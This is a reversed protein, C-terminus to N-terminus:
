EEPQCAGDLYNQCEEETLQRTLRSRAIDMLEDTDLTYVGIQNGPLPVYLLPETPHFAGTMRDTTGFEGLQQGSDTDWVKLPEDHARSLVMSGDHSLRVDTIFANHAAIQLLVNQDPPHGALLGGVDIVFISGNHGAAILRSGDPTFRHVWASTDIEGTDIEAVLRGTSTDWLRRIPMIQDNNNTLVLSGDPTFVAEPVLGGVELDAVSADDRTRVLRTPRNAEDKVIVAISGDDSVGRIHWGEPPTFLVQQDLNSWLHSRGDESRGATYQGNSSFVPFDWIFTSESDPGLRYDVVEGTVADIAGTSVEDHVALLSGDDVAILHATTGYSFRSPITPHDSRAPPLSLVVTEDVLVGAAAVLDTGVIPVMVFAGGRVGGHLRRIVEGDSADLLSPAGEGGVVLRRGDALWLPRSARTLTTTWSVERDVLDYVAVRSQDSVAVRSDDPAISLSDPAFAVDEPSVAIRDLEEGTVADHIPLAAGWGGEPLWTLVLLRGGSSFSPARADELRYRLQQDALGWVEVAYGVTSSREFAVLGRDVDVADEWATSRPLPSGGFDSAEGTRWDWVRVGDEVRAYIVVLRDGSHDFAAFFPEAQERRLEALLQESTRDWVAVSEKVGLTALYRGDDSVAVFRGGPFRQEVFASNVGDRLTAVASLPAEGGAERFADIAALSLMMSLEPDLAVNADAELVLRRAQALSASREAESRQVEAESRQIEAETRQIVAVVALAGAFAAAAAFGGLIRRRRQRRAAAEANRRAISAGLFAREATTIRVDTGAVWEEYQSLRGGTLLNAPNRKSEEWEAHAAQFRRQLVLSERRAEVWGLLTPWERLVAEHAVEVTAGRTTPDVDFTLLRERGFTDLVAQADAEPMGLSRFESVRVRRRLDDADDTVTLLRTFVHRAIDRQADTLTQYAAEAREAVAGRVGGLAGYEAHGIRGDATGAALRDLTFQLMPLSGPQDALDGIIRDALGTELELGAKEAPEIIAAHAADPDLPALALHATSIIPGLTPLSLAEHFFDARLTLLIRIRCAPDAAANAIAAIFRERTEPLAVLTFMEELQDIVVVLEADLQMSLRKAVRLLGMGDPASLEEALDVLSDTAVAALATALEDFPHGRPVSVASVWTASGAVGSHRLAPLVGALVLSSKGSGSPGVVASLRHETVMKVARRIESTRGFFDPADPETFAALGKYPNRFAHAARPPVAVGASSTLLDLLEDVTTPRADPDVALGRELVDRLGPDLGSLDLGPPERGSLLRALVACLSYVDARADVATGDRDEPARYGAAAEGIGRAGEVARGAVGFDTLYANADADLLVNSPKINRHLVGQRHAYALGSGVQAVARLGREMPIPISADDALSGGALFPTILYAGDADRWYDHITALHPHALSAVFRTETEFRRVFAPHNAFEPRVIKVAVERGISPQFARYVTALASRGVIERLEYGRAVDGFSRDPEVASPSVIPPPFDAPLGSLVLQYLEQAAALARFRHEGLSKVQTGPDRGLARQADVSLLIQGGHAAAVLRSGRNMPPGFLDGGRREVEGTDLVMRVSLEFQRWDHALIARQAAAAARAALAPESFAAILGDGLSRIVTGGARDIETRLIEDLRARAVQMEAPHSEWLWRSDVVDAFLMALRETAVDRSQILSYDHNLIRVELEQLEPSPDLGLEERLYEQTRRFVRLADAQRGDRYLALMHKARLSERLPHEAALAELESILRAHRGLILDAEIRSEVAALRLEELRVAEIALGPFAAVDAYARGRWLALARRLRDSAVSPNTVLEARATDVDDEFAHGDVDSRTAALRYGSGHREIPHGVSARLNSVYTHLSSLAAVPPDEGWVGDVLEDTTVVGGLRAVLMALVARQKPGGLHAVGSSTMVEVPGLVRIDM